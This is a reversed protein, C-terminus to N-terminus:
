LLSSNVSSLLKMENARLSFPPMAPMNECVPSTCTCPQFWFYSWSLLPRPVKSQLIFLLPVCRVYASLTHKLLNQRSCTWTIHLLAFGLLISYQDIQSRPNGPRIEVLGPGQQELKTLFPWFVKGKQSSIGCSRIHICCVHLLYENEKRNGKNLQSLLM